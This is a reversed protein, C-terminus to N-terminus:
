LKEGFRVFESKEGRRVSSGSRSSPEEFSRQPLLHAPFTSRPSDEAAILMLNRFWSRGDVLLNPTSELLFSKRFALSPKNSTM